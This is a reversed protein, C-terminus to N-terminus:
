EIEEMTVYESGYNFVPKVIFKIKSHEVAYTSKPLETYDTKNFYRLTFNNDAM